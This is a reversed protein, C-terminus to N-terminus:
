PTNLGETCGALGIWNGGSNGASVNKDVLETPIGELLFGFGDNAFALNELINASNSIQFGNANSIATCKMILLATGNSQVGVYDNDVFRMNIIRNGMGDTNIGWRFNKVTGNKVEVNSHGAIQIGYTSNEGGNGNIVFGALDITVDNAQLVIGNGNSHLNKELYYFGPLVITYPLSVIRTSIFLTPAAWAAGSILFVGLLVAFLVRQRM